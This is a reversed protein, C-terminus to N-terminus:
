LMMKNYPWMAFSRSQAAWSSLHEVYQQCVTSGLGEQLKDQLERLYIGPNTIILRLLLLQEFDGLLRQPGNQRAVGM